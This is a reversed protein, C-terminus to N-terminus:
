DHFGGCFNELRWRQACLYSEMERPASPMPEKGCWWIPWGMMWAVFLPNLRRKHSRRGCGPDGCWCKAGPKGTEPAPLSCLAATIELKCAGAGRESEEGNRIRELQAESAEMGSTTVRPTPWTTVQDQLDLTHGGALRKEPDQAGGKSPHGAAPTRWLTVDDALNACGHETGYRRVREPNGGVSDHAQPTTWLRAQQDLGKEDKRDGGRSRFSDTAPTQWQSAASPLMLDGKSGRQNPGGKGGDSSRPSPWSSRGRGSTRPAWKERRYVFGSRMSGWKPWRGSSRKQFRAAKTQALCGRSTKSSCGNQSFKGYLEASSGGYDRGHGTSAKGNEPSPCIKAPFDELSARWKAVGLCVALPTSTLGSLRTTSLGKKCVRQWSKPARLKTKWTASAALNRCLLESPWTSAEQALLFRSIHPVYLWM